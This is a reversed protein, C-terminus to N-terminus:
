TFGTRPVFSIDVCQVWGDQGICASRKDCVNLNMIEIEIKREVM